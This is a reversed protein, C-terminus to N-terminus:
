RKMANFIVLALKCLFKPGGRARLAQKELAFFSQGMGRACRKKKGVIFSAWAARACRMKKVSYAQGVGRACRKKLFYVHGVGRPRLANPLAIFKVSGARALVQGM